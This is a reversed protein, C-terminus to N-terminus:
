HKLSSFRSLLGGEAAVTFFLNLDHRESLDITFLKKVTDEKVVGAFILLVLLADKSRHIHPNAHVDDEITSKSVCYNV